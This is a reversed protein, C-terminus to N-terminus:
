RREDEYLSRALQHEPDCKLAQKYCAVAREKEGLAAYCRGLLCRVTANGPHKKAAASLVAEAEAPNGERLTAYGLVITAELSDRSLSLARRAAVVAEASDGLAMSCKALRTWAPAADPDLEVAAKYAAAAPGLRGLAMYSDGIMMHVWLAKDQYLPHKSLRSLDGLAESYQGAFFRAKALKERLLINEPDMDLCRQFFRAAKAPEKVLMALEGALAVVPLPEEAPGLREELLELAQRPKDMAVLVEALATLYGANAPDGECAKHYLEAAQAHLGQHELAVGLLYSVEPNEPSLAEAERLERVAQAYHGKELLVKALLIRAPVYDPNLSLAELASIRADEVDGVKLHRQGVGCLLQARASDFRKYASEKQRNPLQCGCIAALLLALIVQRKM